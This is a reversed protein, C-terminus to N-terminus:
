MRSQRTSDQDDAANRIRSSKTLGAADRPDVGGFEPKIEVEILQAWEKQTSAALKPLEQALFLDCWTLPARCPGASM